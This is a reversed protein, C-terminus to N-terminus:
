FVLGSDDTKIMNIGANVGAALQEACDEANTSASCANAATMIGLSKALAMAEDNSVSGKAFAAWGSNFQDQEVRPFMARGDINQLGHTYGEMYDSGNLLVFIFKGRSDDVTPWGVTEIRERVSSYSQKFEDPSLMKEGMQEFLFADLADLNHIPAGGSFAKVELWIFVPEHNENHDSWLKLHDLCRELTYCTSVQDIGQIHYIEFQGTFPNKHVDLEFARVGDRDLQEYLAPHSYAHSPHFLLPPHVHYSNHTGKMSLLNLPTSDKSTAKAGIETKIFIDGEKISGDSYTVTYPITEKKLTSANSSNAASAILTSSPAFNFSLTQADEIQLHGWQSEAVTVDTITAEKPAKLDLQFDVANGESYIYANPLEFQCGSLILSTAVILHAFGIRFYGTQFCRATFGM